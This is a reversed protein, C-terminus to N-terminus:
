FTLFDFSKCFSLRGAIANYCLLCWAKNTESEGDVEKCVKQRTNITYKNIYKNTHIQKQLKSLLFFVNSILVLKSMSIILKQDNGNEFYWFNWCFFQFQFSTASSSMLKVNSLWYQQQQQQNDWHQKFSNLFNSFHADQHQHQSYHWSKYHKVFTWSTSVPQWIKLNHKNEELSSEPWSHLTKKSSTDEM